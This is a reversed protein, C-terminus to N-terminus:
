ALKFDHNNIILSISFEEDIGSKENPKFDKM